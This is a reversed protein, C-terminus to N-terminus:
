LLRCLKDACYYERVQTPDMPPHNKTIPSNGDDMGFFELLCEGIYVDTFSLFFNKDASFAKKVNEDVSKRQLMLQECRM